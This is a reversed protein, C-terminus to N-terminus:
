QTLVFEGRRNKAWCDEGHETCAPREEGYSKTQIRAGDIGLGILYARIAMARREGLSLNYENSGREDCNGEVILGVASSTKLENAVAEIKSRETEKIQASDYDFYVPAFQGAMESAGEPRESLGEIESPTVGGIGESGPAHRRGKKACGTMTLVGVLGMAVVLSWRKSQM